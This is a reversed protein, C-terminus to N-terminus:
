RQDQVVWRKRQPMWTSLSELQSCLRERKHSTAAIKMAFGSPCPRIVMGEVRGIREIYAIVREGPKAPSSCALAVGHHSIDRVVCPHESGDSLMCRGTLNLAIRASARRERTADPPATHTFPPTVSAAERPSDSDDRLKM